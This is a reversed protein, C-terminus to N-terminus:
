MDTVVLMELWQNRSPELVDITVSSLRHCCSVRRNAQRRTDRNNILACLMMIAKFAALKRGKEDMDIVM